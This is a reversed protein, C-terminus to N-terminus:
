DVVEFLNKDFFGDKNDDCNQIYYVIRSCIEYGRDVVKETVFYIKDITLQNQYYNNNICKANM